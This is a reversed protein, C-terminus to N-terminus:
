SATYTCYIFHIVAKFRSWVKHWTLCFTLSWKKRIQLTIFPLVWIILVHLFSNKLIFRNRYRWLATTPELFSFLIDPFSINGFILLSRHFYQCMLSCTELTPLDSEIHRFNLLIESLDNAKQRARCREHVSEGKSKIIKATTVKILNWFYYKM